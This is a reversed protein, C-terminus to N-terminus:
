GIIPTHFAGGGAQHVDHAIEELGMLHHLSQERAVAPVLEAERLELLQHPSAFAADQKPELLAAVGEEPGSLSAGSGHAALHQEVEGHAREEVLRHLEALAEVL